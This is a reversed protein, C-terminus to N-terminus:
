RVMVYALGTLSWQVLHRVSRRMPVPRLLMKAAMPFPYYKKAFRRAQRLYDKWDAERFTQHPHRVAWVHRFAIYTDEGRIERLRRWITAAVATLGFHEVANCIGFFRRFHNYHATEDASILGLLERLVPERVYNRLARYFTSTGTEIVCRAILELARSAELQEASCLLGYEGAFGRHATEWDFEPWVTQVYTKLARGHQVEERQWHLDLWDTVDTNGQYHRILNDSYTQAMIEVFSASALTVFLFEDDRSLATDVSVFDIQDLSWTGAQVSNAPRTM